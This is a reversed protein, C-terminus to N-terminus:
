KVIIKKGNRIYIGGNDPHTVPHGLLDFFIDDSGDASLIEVATTGVRIVYEGGFTPMVGDDDTVTLTVKYEGEAINGLSSSAEVIEEDDARSSYHGDIVITDDSVTVQQWYRGGALGGIRCVVDPDDDERPDHQGTGVETGPDKQRVFARAIYGDLATSGCLTYDDVVAASGEYGSLYVHYYDNTCGGLKLDMQYAATATNLAGDEAFPHVIYLYITNGFVDYKLSYSEDKVAKGSYYGTLYLTDNQLAFHFLNDVTDTPHTYPEDDLPLSGDRAERFPYRPNLEEVNLFNAWTESERYRKTCGKPVFLVVNRSMGQSTLFYNGTTYIVVYASNNNVCQAPTYDDVVIKSLKSCGYFSGLGISDMQQGFYASELSSCALFAANGIYRLTNPLAAEKLSTCQRFAEPEIRELGEHFTVEELNPCCMFAGNGIRKVSPPIVIRRINRHGLFAENNIREVKDTLTVDTLAQADAFWTGGVIKTEIVVSQLASETFVNAGISTMSPLLHVSKLGAGMFAQSGITTMKDTFPFTVLASCQAFADSGISRVNAGLHVSELSTCGSFLGDSIKEVQEPLTITSLAICNQFVRNEMNTVQSGFTVATLGTCGRFLAARVTKMAEPLVISKLTKCYAFACTDIKTLNESLHIDTLASCDVFAEKGLTTVQEGMTVTKLKACQLFARKGVTTLNEPLNITTLSKCYAFAGPDIHTLTGPLSVEELNTCGVFAFSSISEVGEKVVVKKIYKQYGEYRGKNWPANSMCEGPKYQNHAQALWKADGNAMLKNDLLEGNNKLVHYPYMEGNGSLTLVGNPVNFDWQIAGDRGNVSTPELADAEELSVIACANKWDNSAQYSRVYEAPVCVNCAGDFRVPGDSIRWPPQNLLTLKWLCPCDAFARGDLYQIFSHFTITSIFSGSFASDEITVVSMPLELSRIVRCSNFALRDIRTVVYAVGNSVFSSPIVVDNEYGKLVNEDWGVITAKHELSLRYKIGDVTVANAATFPTASTILLLFFLSIFSLRKNM